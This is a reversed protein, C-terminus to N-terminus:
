DKKSIKQKREMEREKLMQKIFEDYTYNKRKYLYVEDVGLETTNNGKLSYIYDYTTTRWNVTIWLSESLVNGFEPIHYNFDQGELPPETQEPILTALEETTLNINQKPLLNGEFLKNIIPPGRYTGRSSSVYLDSIKNEGTNTLDLIMLYKGTPQRSESQFIESNFPIEDKFTTARVVPISNGGTQEDYIKDVLYKANKTLRNLNNTTQLNKAGLLNGNQALTETNSVIQNNIKQLRETQKSLQLNLQALTQISESTQKTSDLTKQIRAQDLQSQYSNVMGGIAGVVALIMSTINIWSKFKHNIDEDKAMQVIAVGVASLCVIIWSWNNKLFEM